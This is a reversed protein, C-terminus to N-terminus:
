AWYIVLQWSDEGEGRGTSTKLWGLLAPRLMSSPSIEQVRGYRRGGSTRCRKELRKIGLNHKHQMGIFPNPFVIQELMETGQM